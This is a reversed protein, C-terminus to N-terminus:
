RCVNDVFTKMAVQLNYKTNYSKAIWSLVSVKYYATLDNQAESYAQKTIDVVVRRQLSTVLREINDASNSVHFKSNWDTEIAKHM